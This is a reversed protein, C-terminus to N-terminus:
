QWTILAPSEDIRLDTVKEGVRELAFYLITMSEKLRFAILKPNRQDLLSHGLNVPAVLGEDGAPGDLPEGREGARGALANRQLYNAFM